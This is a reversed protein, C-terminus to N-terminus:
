MFVPLCVGLCRSLPEHCAEREARILGIPRQQGATGAPPPTKRDGALPLGTMEIQQQTAGLNLRYVWDADRVAGSKTWKQPVLLAIGSAVFGPPHRPRLSRPDQGM